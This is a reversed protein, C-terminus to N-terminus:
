IECGNQADRLGSESQLGHRFEPVRARLDWIREGAASILGSSEEQCRKGAQRLTISAVGQLDALPERWKGQAETKLLWVDFWRPPNEIRWKLM